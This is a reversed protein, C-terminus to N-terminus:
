RGFRLGIELGPWFRGEDDKRTLNNSWPHILPETDGHVLANLSLGAFIGIHAFLPMGMRARAQFLQNLGDDEFGCHKGHHEWQADTTNENAVLHAFLEAEVYGSGADWHRGLGMGLSYPHTDDDPTFGFDFATYFLHGSAFTLHGMGTIDSSADFHFLGNKSLTLLALSTGDIQRSINVWGIQAGQVTDAINLGGFQLKEVRHAINTNWGLQTSVTRAYNLGFGMQMGKVRATAINAILAAQSGQLTDRTINAFLSVQNRGENCSVDKMLPSILDFTKDCGAHRTSDPYATASTSASVPDAQTLALGSLLAGLFVTIRKNKVPLKFM